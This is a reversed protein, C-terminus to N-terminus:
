LTPSRIPLGPNSGWGPRHTTGKLLLCKSGLLVPLVWSYPRRGLMVSYNNVPVNLILDFLCVFLYILLHQNTKFIPTHSYLPDFNFSQIAMFFEVLESLRTWTRLKCGPHLNAGPTYKQGHSRHKLSKCGFAFKCGPASSKSRSELHHLNIQARTCIQVRTCNTCM